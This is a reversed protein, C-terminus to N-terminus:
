VFSSFWGLLMTYFMYVLIKETICSMVILNTDFIHSSPVIELNELTLLM